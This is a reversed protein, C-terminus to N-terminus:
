KWCKICYNNLPNIPPKNSCGYLEECSSNYTCSKCNGTYPDYCKNEKKCEKCLDYKIKQVHYENCIENKCLKNCETIKYKNKIKEYDLENKKDIPTKIVRYSVLKNNIKILSYMFIGFFIIFLLIISIQLLFGKM